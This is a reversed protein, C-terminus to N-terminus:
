HQAGTLSPRRDTLPAPAMGTTDTHHRHHDGAQRDTPRHDAAASPWRRTLGGVRGPWDCVILQKAQRGILVRSVSPRACGVGHSM